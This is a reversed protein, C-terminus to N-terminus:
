GFINRQANAMYQAVLRSLWFLIVILAFRLLDICIVIYTLGMEKRKGHVFGLIPKTWPNKKIMSTLLQKARYRDHFIKHGKWPQKGSQCDKEYENHGEETDPYGDDDADGWEVM